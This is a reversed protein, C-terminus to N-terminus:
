LLLWFYLQFFIEDFVIEQIDDLSADFIVWWDAPMGINLKSLALHICACSIEEPRFRLFVNTQLGDNM